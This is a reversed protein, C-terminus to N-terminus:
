RPDRSALALAGTLSYVWAGLVGAWLLVSMPGWVVWAGVVLAFDERLVTKIRGVRTATKEGIPGDPHIWAAQGRKKVQDMLYFLYTLFVGLGALVGLVEWRAQAEHKALGFGLCVFFAVHVVADSIFDIWSGFGSSSGKLRALEGDCNDLVYSGEFLIAGWFWGQRSGSLFAWAAALGLGLSLLTVQHPTVPLRALVPTLAGSFIRNIPLRM